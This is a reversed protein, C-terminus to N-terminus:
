RLGRHKQFDMWKPLVDIEYAEPIEKFEHVLHFLILQAPWRGGM